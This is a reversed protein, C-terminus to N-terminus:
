DDQGSNTDTPWPVASVAVAVVSILALFQVWPSHGVYGDVSRWPNQSLVAGALILGGAAGVVTITECLKERRRLLHRAGFASASLAAGVP